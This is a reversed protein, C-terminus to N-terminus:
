LFDAYEDDYFYYYYDDGDDSLRYEESARGDQADHIGGISRWITRACFKLATATNNKTTASGGHAPARRIPPAPPPAAGKAFSSVVAQHGSGIDPTEV